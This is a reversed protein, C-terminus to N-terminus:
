TPVCQVLALTSPYKPRGAPRKKINLFRQHTGKISKNEEKERIKMLFM